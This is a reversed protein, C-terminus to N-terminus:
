ASELMAELQEEDEKRELERGLADLMEGGEMIEELGSLTLPIRHDTV